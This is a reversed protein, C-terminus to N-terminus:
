LSCHEIQKCLKTYHPHCGNIGEGFHEVEITPLM